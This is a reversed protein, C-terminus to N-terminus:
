DPNLFTITTIGAEKTLLVGAGSVPIQKGEETLWAADELFLSSQEVDDSYYTMFGLLRRGDKLDVLMYSRHIDQLVDNWVSIRSTKETIQLKRLAKHLWDHQLVAGYLLSLVVAEVFLIGLQVWQLHVRYSGAYEHWSVPLTNGFFPLSTLYLVFSLVLAEILKEFDSQKARTTVQRLVVASIFGPLLFLLIGLVSLSPPIPM